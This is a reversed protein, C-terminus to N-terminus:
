REDPALRRGRELAACYGAQRGPRGPYELRLRAIIKYDIPPLRIKFASRGAPGLKNDQCPM